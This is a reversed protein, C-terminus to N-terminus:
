GCKAEQTPLIVNSVDQVTPTVVLNPETHQVIKGFTFEVTRSQGPALRIALVGVPRNSHSYPAFETKQGDLKATEVNAQVPGYAVINTQVSGPPVGFVGDGTVYAPLSAAADAPATNTSTIRVTTQQYGEQSCEKRLQVTRKVFYDMKAGTGDNFYVGFEAPLVSPGAISGSLPYKSIITQEAPSASWIRVRGENKAKTVGDILRKADVSGDSLAAFVEQAVGAFYADQLAPEQIKTYVDSLLTQVVNKGSLEAPLGGGGLAVLDPNSIKIPGTAELIYSLAVPDISIVGDLRNGTRKEWMTKATLAATPFDPTLNVDQMFKGLRASYIQTQVADADVAPSFVGLDAASTQHSLTMRGQDLTLVALAGPIGGTARLESNNQVMLLYHHPSAIGMMGPALVAADAAADLGDSMSALQERARILPTSVAPILEETNITNLRDSSDRVAQAAARIEPQAAELPLLNTEGEAPILDKWDLVQLTDVLPSVGLQVVDDASRATERAAKFSSGVWPLAIALSWVPDESAERAKTTEQKLQQLTAAAAASDDDLVDSELRPALENVATLSERAATVKLSLWAASAGIFLLLIAALAGAILARRRKTRGGSGGAQM